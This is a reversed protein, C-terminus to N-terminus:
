PIIKNVTFVYYIGTSWLSAEDHRRSRLGKEYISGPLIHETALVDPVAAYFGLNLIRLTNTGLLGTKVVGSKKTVYSGGGINYTFDALADFEKQALPVRVELKMPLLAVRFIDQFLKQEAADPSIGNPYQARDDDTCPGYHELHGFGVTCNGVGPSGGDDYPFAKFTEHLKIFEVGRSSITSATRYQHKFPEYSLISSANITNSVGFGGIAESVDENGSPDVSNVPDAATYVYKQLSSPNEDDGDVSDMSFFRGTSANLYRARNFYLGLDPDFQEGAFLYNNYTTGTSHILNGFADYDYTVVSGAVNKRSCKRCSWHKEGSLQRAAEFHLLIKVSSSLACTMSLVEPYYAHSPTSSSLPVTASAPLALGACLAAALFQRLM